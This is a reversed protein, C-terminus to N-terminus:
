VEYCVYTGSVKYGPLITRDMTPAKHMGSEAQGQTKADKRRKCRQMEAEM